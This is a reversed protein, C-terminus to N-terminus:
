KRARLEQALWRSLTPASIGVASAAEKQTMGNAVHERCLKILAGRHIYGVGVTQGKKTTGIKKALLNIAM